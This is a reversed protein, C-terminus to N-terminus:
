TFYHELAFNPARVIVLGEAEPTLLGRVFMRDEGEHTRQSGRGLRMHPHTRATREKGYSRRGAKQGGDVPRAGDKAIPRCHKEYYKNQWEWRTRMILRSTRRMRALRRGFSTHISRITSYRSPKAFMFPRRTPEDRMRHIERLPAPFQTYLLYLTLVTGASSGRIVLYVGLVVFGVGFISEITMKGADFLGM